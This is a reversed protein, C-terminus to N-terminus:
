AGEGAPKEATGIPPVTTLRWAAMFLAAILPGLVFGNIGVVELGGLTTVLVVFDPLRADRGVLIPRLLNDVLSIVCIGFGVLVAAQWVQGTAFLYLAVPVWVVASGLAPVLSLFGMLVAWLLAGEIGLFWFILGGLSGQVIAVVITGKVTARVVTVFQAVLTDCHVPHLPLASAAKAFLAKGDRILFFTVYLMVGLGVFMGFASQSLLLAQNAITRFSQTFGTQIMRAAADFDTLGFRQLLATAWSPLVARVQEFWRAPDIRGDRIGAYLGSAENVLGGILLLAPVIIVVTIVLLTILAAVNRNGFRALLRGHLPAFLIAGILSWLVAGLYPGVIWILAVTLGALIIFFLADKLKDTKASKTTM